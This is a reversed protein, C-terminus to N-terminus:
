KKGTAPIKVIRYGVGHVTQILPKSGTVNLKCRLHNVQVHINNSSTVNNGEWVYDALLEKSVASGMNLMLCELLTYERKRLFIPRGNRSALHSKTDLVLDDTMLKSVAIGSSPKKTHIAVRARLEEAYVPKTIYDSAGSDLMAVKTALDGAGSVVVIPTSANTARVSDYLSQGSDDPLNLDLLILDYTNAKLKALALQAYPAIHVTFSKYFLYYLSSTFRTDDDIVLLKM